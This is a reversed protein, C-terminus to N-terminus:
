GGVKVWTLVVTSADSTSDVVLMSRTIHIGPVASLSANVTALATFCSNGSMGQTTSVGKEWPMVRRM